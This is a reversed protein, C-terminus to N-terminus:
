HSSKIFQPSGAAEPGETTTAPRSLCSAAALRRAPLRLARSETRALRRCASRVGTAARRLLVRPSSPKSTDAAKAACPNVLCQVEEATLELDCDAAWDLVIAYCNNDAAALSASTASTPAEAAARAPVPHTRISWGRDAAAAAASKVPLAQNIKDEAAANSAASSPERSATPTSLNSLFRM